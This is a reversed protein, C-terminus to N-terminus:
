LRVTIIEQSDTDFFLLGEDTDNLQALLQGNNDWAATRGAGVFGDCPGLCNALLVPMAYIRAIDALQASAKAVGEASKAVSAAYLGAGNRYAREAHEPVSLEYCIALATKPANGLIGAAPEGRVFYPEEDPHLYQKAYQQRPQHPQFLLLSICIGGGDRVPMGAGVAIQGADSLQQFNDFRPDELHTALAEALTPEYGTLSLEPFIIMGAGMLVAREIMKKHIEINRPVDGPIPRNQAACIKM